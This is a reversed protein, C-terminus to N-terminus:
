EQILKYIAHKVKSINDIQYGHQHRLRHIVSSLRYCRFLELAEVGTITNGRKLYDIIADDQNDPVSQFQLQLKKIFEKRNDKEILFNMDESFKIFDEFSQLFEEFNNLIETRSTGMISTYLKSNLQKLRDIQEKTIKNSM